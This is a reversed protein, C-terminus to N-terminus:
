VMWLTESHLCLILYTLATPKLKWWSLDPLTSIAAFPLCGPSTAPYSVQYLGVADSIKIPLIHLSILLFYSAHLWIFLKQTGPDEHVPFCPVVSSCNDCFLRMKNRNEAIQTPLNEEQVELQRGQNWQSYASDSPSPATGFISVKILDQRIRLLETM